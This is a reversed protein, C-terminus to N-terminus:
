PQNAQVRYFARAAPPNTDSLTLINGTGSASASVASWSILDTSRELTYTWGTYTGFQAQWVGNSLAGALNRVVPPLTM